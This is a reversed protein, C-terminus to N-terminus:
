TVSFEHPGLGVVTPDGSAAFAGTFAVDVSVLEGGPFDTWDLSAFDVTFGAAPTDDASANFLIINATVQLSSFGLGSLGDCNVGVTCPVGNVTIEDSILSANAAPSGLAYITAALVALVPLRSYWDIAKRM